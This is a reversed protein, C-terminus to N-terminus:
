PQSFSAWAQIEKEQPMNFKEKPLMANFSIASILFLYSFNALYIIDNWIAEQLSFLIRKNHILGNFFM